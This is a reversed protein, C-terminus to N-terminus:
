RGLEALSRQLFGTLWALGCNRQSLLLFVYTDFYRSSGNKSILKTKTENFMFPCGSMKSSRDEEAAVRDEQEPVEGEDSVNGDAHDSPEIDAGYSKLMEEYRRLKAHLGEKPASRKRPKGRVPAIFSCQRAARTCQSCPNQRDCKVKRQRCPLCSFMKLDPTNSRHLEVEPALPQSM